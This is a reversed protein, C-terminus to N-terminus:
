LNLNALSSGIVGAGVNDIAVLIRCRNNAKMKNEKRKLMHVLFQRWLFRGGSEFIWLAILCVASLRLTGLTEFGLGSAVEIRSAIESYGLLLIHATSFGRRGHQWHLHLPGVRVLSGNAM